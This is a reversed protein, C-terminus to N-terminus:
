CSFCKWSVDKHCDMPKSAALIDVFSNFITSQEPHDCLPVTKEIAIHKETWTNAHPCELLAMTVAEVTDKVVNTRCSEDLAEPSGLIFSMDSDELFRLANLMQEDQMENDSPANGQSSTAHPSQPPTCGGTATGEDDPLDEAQKCYNMKLGDCTEVLNDLTASGTAPANVEYDGGCKGGVEGESETDDANTDEKQVHAPSHSEPDKEVDEDDWTDEQQEDEDFTVHACYFHYFTSKLFDGIVTPLRAFDVDAGKSDELCACCEAYETKLEALKYTTSVSSALDVLFDSLVSVDPLGEASDPNALKWLALKNALLGKMHIVMAAFNCIILFTKGEIRWSTKNKMAYVVPDNEDM